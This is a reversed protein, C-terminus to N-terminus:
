RRKTVNAFEMLIRNQDEVSLEDYEEINDSLLQHVKTLLEYIVYGSM